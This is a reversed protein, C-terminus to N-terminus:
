AKNEELSKKIINYGLTYSSEDFKDFGDILHKLSFIIKNRKQGALYCALGEFFWAPKNTGFRKVYFLHVMEHIILKLWEERNVGSLSQELVFISKKEPDAFGVVWDKKRFLSLEKKDIVSVFIKGTSIGFLAELEEKSSILSKDIEGLEFIKGM